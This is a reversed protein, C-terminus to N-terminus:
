VYSFPTHPAVAIDYTEAIAANKRGLLLSTMSLDPNMISAEQKEFLRRFGTPTYIRESAALPVSTNAVIKVLTEVKDSRAPEEVFLPQLTELRQCLAIANGPNPAGGLDLAIDVEYSV